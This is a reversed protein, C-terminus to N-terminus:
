FAEVDEAMYSVVAIGTLYMDVLRWCKMDVSM